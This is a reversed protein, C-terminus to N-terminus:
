SWNLHGLLNIHSQMDQAVVDTSLEADDNHGDSYIRPVATIDKEFYLDRVQLVEHENVILINLMELTETSQSM